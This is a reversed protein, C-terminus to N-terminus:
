NCHHIILWNDNDFRFRFFFCLLLQVYQWMDELPVFLNDSTGILRVLESTWQSTILAASQLSYLLTANSLGGSIYLSYQSHHIDPLQNMPQFSFCVCVSLGGGGGCVCVDFLRSEKRRVRCLCTFFSYTNKKGLVYLTFNRISYM